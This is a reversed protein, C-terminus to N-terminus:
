NDYNKNNDNNDDDGHNCTYNDNGDAMFPTCDRLTVLMSLHKERQFPIFKVSLNTCLFATHLQTNM